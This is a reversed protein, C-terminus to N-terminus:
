KNFGKTYHVMQGIHRGEHVALQMEWNLAYLADGPPTTYLEIRKPAWAVMGNSYMDYPQLVMPMRPTEIHLGTLTAPRTKEFSYLYERALSDIESPYILKFHDGELQSWRTGAPASGSLVYQARVPLVAALLLILTLITRKIRM